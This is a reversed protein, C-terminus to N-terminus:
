LHHYFKHRIIAIGTFKQGLTISQIVKHKLKFAQCQLISNCVCWVHLLLGFPEPSSLRRVFVTFIIIRKFFPFSPIFKFYFIFFQNLFFQLTLTNGRIM